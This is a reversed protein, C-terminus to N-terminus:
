REEGREFDEITVAHPDELVAFTDAFRIEDKRM